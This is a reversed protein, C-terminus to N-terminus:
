LVRQSAAYLRKATIEFKLSSNNLVKETKNDVIGKVNYEQRNSYNQIM